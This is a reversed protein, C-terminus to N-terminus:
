QKRGGSVHAAFGERAERTLPSLESAAEPFVELGIAKAVVCLQEMKHEASVYLRGPM